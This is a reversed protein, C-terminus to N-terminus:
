PAIFDESIWVVTYGSNSLSQSCDRTTKDIQLQTLCSKLVKIPKLNDTGGGLWAMSVPECDSSLIASSKSPYMFNNHGLESLYCKIYDGESIRM